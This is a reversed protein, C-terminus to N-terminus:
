TAHARWAIDNNIGTFNLPLSGNKVGVGRPRASIEGLTSRVPRLVPESAGGFKRVLEGVFRERDRDRNLEHAPDEAVVNM